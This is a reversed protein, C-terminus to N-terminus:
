QLQVAAANNCHRQRQIGVYFAGGITVTGGSM